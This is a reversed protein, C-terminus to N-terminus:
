PAGKRLQDLKARALSHKAIAAMLADYAQREEAEAGVPDEGRLFLGRDALAIRVERLSKQGFHRRRLLESATMQRLAGITAIPPASSPGYLANSTRVSFDLSATQEADIREGAPSTPTALLRDIADPAKRARNEIDTTRDEIEVLRDTLVRVQGKLAIISCAV